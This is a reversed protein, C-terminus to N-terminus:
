YVSWDSVSSTPNYDAGGTLPSGGVGADVYVENTVDYFAESFPDDTEAFEPDAAVWATGEFTLDGSVSVVEIQFAGEHVQAAGDLTVTGGGSFNVANSSASSGNGALITNNLNLNLDFLAINFVNAPAKQNAVTVSDFTIQQTGSGPGFEVNAIGNNSIIANSFIMHVGTGVGNQVWLGRGGNDISNVGNISRTSNAPNVFWMGTSAHGTILLRENPADVVIDGNLQMGVRQNYSFVCGDEFRYHRYLGAGANSTIIGDPSVNGRNHTVVVDRFLVEMGAEEIGGASGLFMGDDGFHTAGTLDALALGDESVPANSGNNATIVINDLYLFMNASATRLGRAAPPNTLSPILVLNKLAVTGTTTGSPLVVVLGDSAGGAANAQLAFRPRIPGTGEITIPRNVTIIEDYVEGDTVQIVNPAPDSDGAFSDIAEQVTAFNGGSKAVTVTQSFSPSASGLFMLTAATLVNRGVLKMKVGEHTDNSKYIWINYIM